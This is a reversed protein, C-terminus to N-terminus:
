KKKAAPKRAAKKKGPKKLKFFGFEPPYMFTATAGGAQAVFCLPESGSPEINFLSWAFPHGSTPNAPMAGTPNEGESDFVEVQVDSAPRVFGEIWYGNVPDFGVNTISIFNALDSGVRRKGNRSPRKSQAM